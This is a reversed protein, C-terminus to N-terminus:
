RKILHWLGWVLRRSDQFLTAIQYTWLFLAAFFLGPHERHWRTTLRRVADRVAPIKALHAISVGLLAGALVDTPWHVGLYMVLFGMVTVWGLALGGLPRSVFLIGTALTVFLTMHDSPFSSWGLLMMNAESPFHFHLAACWIPRTRFPLSLALLRAALVAVVSLLTAGLLLEHRKRLQGKEVRDFLAYWVLLVIPVCIILNTSYLRSTLWDFWNWRNAFHNLFLLIRVDFRNMPM